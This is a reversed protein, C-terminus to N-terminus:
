SDSKSVALCVQQLVPLVSQMAGLVHGLQLVLRAQMLGAIASAGGAAPAGPAGWAGRPPLRALTSIVVDALTAATLGAAFVQLSAMDGRAVMGSLTALVQMRM